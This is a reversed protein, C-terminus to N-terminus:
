QRENWLRQFENWESSALEPFARSSVSLLHQIRKNSIAYNSRGAARGAYFLWNDGCFL